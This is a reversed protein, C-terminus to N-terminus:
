SLSRSLSVVRRARQAEATSLSKVASVGLDSLNKGFDWIWFGFDSIGMEWRRDEMESSGEVERKGGEVL